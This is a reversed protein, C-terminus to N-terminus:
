SDLVKGHIHNVTNKLCSLPRTEWHLEQDSYKDQYFNERMFFLTVLLTVMKHSILSKCPRKSAEIVYM